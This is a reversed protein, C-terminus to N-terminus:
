MSQEPARGDEPLVVFFSAGGHRNNEAWIKGNHLQIITRCISLGMGMGDPKTSFFPEFLRPLDDEDIGTGTDAVQIAIGDDRALSSITLRRTTARSKDIAEFGNLVLNLLVQQLHVSDGLIQPLGPTLAIDLEVRKAVADNSVMKAVSQVVSNLDLREPVVPERRLLARLRRIVDGARKDDEIIDDLADQTEALDPRDNALLRKAAQANSLIAALPQNLEHALSAALEGLMTVRAVHALEERRQRAEQEARYRKTADFVVTYFGQIRREDDFQPVYHSELHRLSHDKFAMDIQFNVSEGGLVRDVYGRVQEYAEEGLVEWMPKGLIVERSRGFWQEYTLNIFRYCRQVDIYSILVPLADAMTLLSKESAQREAQIERRYLAGTIAYGLLRIQVEDDPSWCRHQTVTDCGIVGLFRERFRLPMSLLSKCHSLGALFRRDEHAPDPLRAVDDIAVVKGQQWCEFLWPLRAVDFGRVAARGSVGPACYEVERQLRRQSEDYRYWYCRDVGITRSFRGLAEAVITTMGQEDSEALLRASVDALLAEVRGHRRGQAEHRQVGTMDDIICIVYGPHPRYGVVDFWRGLPSFFCQLEFPNDHVALEVMAEYLTPVQQRFGPFARSMTQGKVADFPIGTQQAFRRNADVHVFDVPRQHPDLVVRYLVVAQRLHDFLAHYYRDHDAGANWRLSTETMERVRCLVRVRTGDHWENVAVEVPFRRGSRHRAECRHREGRPHARKRLPPRPFLVEFATQRLVPVDYGFLRAARHNAYHIRRQEDCVLVADPFADLVAWSDHAAVTEAHDKQVVVPRPDRSEM